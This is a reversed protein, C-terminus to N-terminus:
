QWGKVEQRLLVLRGFVRAAHKEMYSASLLILVGIGALLGWPSYVSLHAAFRLDYGLSLIAGMIGAACMLRAQYHFGVIVLGISVALCALASLVSAQVTLQGILALAAFVAGAKRYTHEGRVVRFSLGILLLSLPLWVLLPPMVVFLSALSHFTMDLWGLIIPLVTLVQLRALTSEDQVWRPVMEFGLLGALIATLAIFLDSQPYFATRGVMIALPLMLLTRGALGEGTAGNTTGAMFRSDFWVNALALGLLLVALPLGHRIPILIMGCALLYAITLRHAQSRNLASFGLYAVPVVLLLAAANIALPIWGDAHYLFASPLSGDEASVLSHIMAGLQSFQAAIGAVALGLLTRAGKDEQVRWGLLVGLGALGLVYGLFLFYRYQSGFDQWGELMFSASAGLLLLSGIWRLLQGLKQIDM